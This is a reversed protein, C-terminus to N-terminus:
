TRDLYDAAQLLAEALGRAVDPHVGISLPSPPIEWDDLAQPKPFQLVVARLPVIPIAGDLEMNAAYVTADNVFHVKAM